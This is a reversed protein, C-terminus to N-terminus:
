FKSRINQILNMWKNRAKISTVEPNNTFIIKLYNPKDTHIAYPTISEVVFGHPYANNLLDQMSLSQDIIQLLEPRNKRYYNLAHPEPSNIFWKANSSCVRAINEFLKYHQDVPIHELVDPFVVLDFKLKHNFDSMDTVIFEANASNNFDRAFQISKPSIDCGVLKGQPILKLLLSSVTGIGCGIELINADPKVGLKKVNQAIIRHRTSVGIKGQHKVYDDYYEEVEEKVVM